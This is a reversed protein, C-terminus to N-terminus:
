RPFTFSPIRGGTKAGDGNPIFAMVATSGAGAYRFVFQDGEEFDIAPADVDLEYPQATYQGGSLPEFHAMWAALQRDVGRRRHLLEFQVDVALHEVQEVLPEGGDAEGVDDLAADDAGIRRLELGPQVVRDQEGL